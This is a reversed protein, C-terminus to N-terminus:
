RVNHDFRNIGPLSRIWVGINRWIHDRHNRMNIRNRPYCDPMTTHGSKSDQLDVPHSSPHDHRRFLLAVIHRGVIFSTIPRKLAEREPYPSASPHHVM